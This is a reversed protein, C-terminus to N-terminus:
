MFRRRRFANVDAADLDFWEGAKRKKAFRHHWYAEIGSPDDTRIVHVTRVPEPLQLSLEYQRRGFANSKGIKYYRGSKVLYVFGLEVSDQQSKERCEAHERTYAECWSVVDEMGNHARCYDLLQAVLETKTGLRRFPRDHPFDDDTRAKLRMDANTPLRGLQLAYNAYKDLLQERSYAPTLTNPVLGAARVVDSWRAWHGGWDGKTVGTTRSFARSGLPRGGNAEATRRVEALIFARDM